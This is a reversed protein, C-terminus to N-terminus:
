PFVCHCKNSNTYATTQCHSVGAATSTLLYNPLNGSFGLLNILHYVVVSLGLKRAVPQHVIPIVIIDVTL